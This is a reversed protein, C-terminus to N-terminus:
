KVWSVVFIRKGPRNCESCNSEVVNKATVNWYKDCAECHFHCYFTEDSMKYSTREIISEFQNKNIRILINIHWTEM